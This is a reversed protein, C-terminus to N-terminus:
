ATSGAGRLMYFEEGHITQWVGLISGGKHAPHAFGGRVHPRMAPMGEDDMQGAFQDVVRRTTGAAVDWAVVRQSPSWRSVYVIGDGAGIAQGRLLAARQGDIRM